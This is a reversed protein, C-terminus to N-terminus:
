RVASVSVIGRLCPGVISARTGDGWALCREVKERARVVVKRGRHRAVEHDPRVGARHTELLWSRGQVVVVARGVYRTGRQAVNLEEYRGVIVVPAQTQSQAHSQLKASSKEAGSCCVLLVPFLVLWSKCLRNCCIM